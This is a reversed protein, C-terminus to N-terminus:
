HTWEKIFHNLPKGLTRTCFEELKPRTTIRLRLDKAGAAHPNPPKVWVFNRGDNTTSGSIIQPFERKAMRLVYSITQQAPTLCENVFFGNPKKARVAKLVDIKTERRCLKVIISKQDPKQSKSKGGLRHSVSIENPQLIYNAHTKLLDRVLMAPNEDSTVPPVKNGSLILTDRREYSDNDEIREELRAIHKELVDVRTTLRQIKGDQEEFTKFLDQKLTEFMSSFTEQFNTFVQILAPVILKGDKSSPALDELLSLDTMNVVTCTILSPLCLLKPVSM